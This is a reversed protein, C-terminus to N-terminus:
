PSAWASDCHPSSFRRWESQRRGPSGARWAGRITAAGTSCRVLEAFQWCRCSCRSSPRKYYPPGVSIPEGNCRRSSCRISPAWSCRRRAADAPLPQQAHDGGERSLPAFLAGTRMAPARWAFLALAAGTFAGIIGLIYVGRRADLAFAHVSTLIGSRVLFTGVLSLSFTLIALLITWSILAGRRELVLASHLLATGLLWPMFRPTRWRIGSGGAAGAWRTTPGSAARRSASPSAPDLLGAGLAAGVAGLGADVRGEILAAVAFSFAMSFGVYGLYLMPPHFVLGPDQLVPNLEAGTRPAPLLRLFPNSTFLMFGLFAAGLLGQVGLM